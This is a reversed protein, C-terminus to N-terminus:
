NTGVQADIAAARGINGPLAAAVAPAGLLKLCTRRDVQGLAIQGGPHPRGGRRTSAAAAPHPAPDYTGQSRSPL